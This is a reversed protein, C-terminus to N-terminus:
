DDGHRAAESLITEHRDVQRVLGILTEHLGSLREDLRALLTAIQHLDAVGPLAAVRQELLDIRGSMRADEVRHASACDARVTRDTGIESRLERLERRFEDRAVFERRLAWWLWGILPLAITGIVSGITTLYSELSGLDPM